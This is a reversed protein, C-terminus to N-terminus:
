LGIEMDFASTVEEGLANRDKLKTGSFNDLDGFLGIHEIQYRAIRVAAWPYALGLSFATILMNTFLIKIYENVKLRANFSTGNISTNGFLFNLKGVQWLGLPVIMALLVLLYIIMFPLIVSGSELDSNVLFWVGGSAIALLSAYTLVTKWFLRVWQSQSNLLEFKDNGIYSNNIATDILASYILPILILILILSGVLIWLIHESPRLAFYLFLGQLAAFVLIYLGLRRYLDGVQGRFDFHIGRWSTNRLRFTWSKAFLWPFALIVLVYVALPILGHIYAGFSYLGFLSIGIIRGILIPIPKGHFDFRSGALETNRYFYKRTRVTAWASYIGLTVISLLLNVIWIGFFEGGSGHFRCDNQIIQPSSLTNDTTTPEEM